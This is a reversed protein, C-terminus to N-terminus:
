RLFGSFIWGHAPGIPTDELQVESWNDTVDQNLSRIRVTDRNSSERLVNVNHGQQIETIISANLSPADRVNVGNFRCTVTRAGPYFTPAPSAANLSRNTNSTRNENSVSLKVGVVVVILLLLIGVPVLVWFMPTGPPRAEPRIPPPTAAAPPPSLVATPEVARTYPVTPIPAAKGHSTFQPVEAGCEICFRQSASVANGCQSCIIM